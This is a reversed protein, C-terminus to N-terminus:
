DSALSKYLEATVVVYEDLAVHWREPNRGPMSQLTSHLQSLKSRLGMVKASAVGKATGAEDGM